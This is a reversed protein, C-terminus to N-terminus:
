SAAPPETTPPLGTSPIVGPASQANWLAIYELYAPYSTWRALNAPDPNWLMAKTAAVWDNYSLPAPGGWMQLHTQTLGQFHAQFAAALAQAIKQMQNM